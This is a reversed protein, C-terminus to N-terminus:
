RKIRRATAKLKSKLQASRYKRHHLVKGFGGVYEEIFGRFGAKFVLLSNHDFHGSIGYFNYRKKGKKIASLMAHHQLYHAGYLQRYATDTGSLFYVTENPHHIFVAGSLPTVKDYYVVLFEADKGFEDYLAEYYSIPRSPIHNKDNSSDILQKLESLESRVLKKISYRSQEFKKIIQRTTQRYSTLLDAENNISSLDKIYVWRNATPDYDVTFGKHKFGAASLAEIAITDPGSVVKGTSDRVAYLAQPYVDILYGGREKVYDNVLALFEVVKGPQAFDLLPGMTIEYRGAKGAVLTAAVLANAEYGGLLHTEWGLKQRFAAMSSTQLWNGSPHATAFRDFDAPSLLKLIMM